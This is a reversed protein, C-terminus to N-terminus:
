FLYAVGIRFQNQKLTTKDVASRNLLGFDYGLSVRVMNMLDVGLGAGLYLNTRNYSCNGEDDKGYNDVNTTSSQGLVAATVDTKSSLGIALSPGAFAFVRVDKNVAYAYNATVPISLYMEKTKSTADGVHISGLDYNGTETRGLWSFRLGASLSFDTTLPYSYAGELYFGNNAFSSNNTTNDSINITQRYADNVYGAGVSIQAFSSISVALAAAALIVKKMEFQKRFTIQVSAFIRVIYWYSAYVKWFTVSLM